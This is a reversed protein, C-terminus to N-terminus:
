RYARNICHEVFRKRKKFHLATYYKKAQLKCDATIRELWIADNSKEVARAPAVLSLALAIGAFTVAPLHLRSM